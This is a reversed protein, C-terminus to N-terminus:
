CKELFAIERKIRNIKWQPFSLNAMETKLLKLEDLLDTENGAKALINGTGIFKDRNTGYRVGCKSSNDSIPLSKYTSFTGSVGALGCWHRMSMIVLFGCDNKFNKLKSGNEGGLEDLYKTRLCCDISRAQKLTITPYKACNSDCTSCTEDCLAYKGGSIKMTKFGPINLANVGKQGNAGKFQKLINWLSNNDNLTTKLCSQIDPLQGADYASAITLGSGPKPIYGTLWVGGETKDFHRQLNFNDAGPCHPVDPACCYDSGPCMNRVVINGDNNAGNASNTEDKCATKSVCHGKSGNSDYSIASCESNPSTTNTTVPKPSTNTSLQCIESSRKRRGASCTLTCNGNNCNSNHGGSCSLIGSTGDGCIITCVGDKSCDKSKVGKSCKVINTAQATVTEIPTTGESVEECSNQQNETPVCCKVSGPQSPCKGTLTSGKCGCSCM